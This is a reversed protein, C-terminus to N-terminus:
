TDYCADMEDLIDTAKSDFFSVLLTCVLLIAFSDSHRNRSNFIFSLIQYHINFESVQKVTILSQLAIQACIM